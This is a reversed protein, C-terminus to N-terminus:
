GKAQKMLRRLIVAAEAQGDPFFFVVDGGTDKDIELANNYVTVDLIKTHKFNLSKLSGSFIVRKSTFVLIGSDVKELRQETQREVEYSGTRYRLPGWIKVSTGFGGYSRRTTVRRNLGLEVHRTWFCGEEGLDLECPVERLPSRSLTWLKQAVAVRAQTRDDFSLNIGMRKIEAAFAQYAAPDMAEGADEQQMLAKIRQDFYSQFAQGFVEKVKADALPVEKGLLDIQERKQEPPIDRMLVTLMGVRCYSGFAEAHIAEASSEDLGFSRALNGLNLKEEPAFYRDSLYADVAQRYWRILDDRCRKRIQFGVKADLEAWDEASVFGELPAVALKDWVALLGAQYSQRGLIGDFLNAGKEAPRGFPPVRRPSPLMALTQWAAMGPKWYHDTPLLAGAVLRARVEELPWSGIEAGARAVHILESSM